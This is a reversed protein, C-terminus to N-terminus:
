LSPASIREREYFPKGVRLIHEILAPHTLKSFLSLDLTYPLLLHELESDIRSLTREELGEGLLALDIDSGPRHTGKARSGYLIVREIAPFHTFVSRIQALVEASLGYSM